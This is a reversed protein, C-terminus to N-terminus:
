EHVKASRMHLVVLLYWAKSSSQARQNTANQSHWVIGAWGWWWTRSFHAKIARKVKSSHRSGIALMIVTYRHTVCLQLKHKTRHLVILM